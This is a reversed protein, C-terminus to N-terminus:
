QSSEEAPNTARALDSVLTPARGSLLWMLIAGASAVNLSEMDGLMPISVPHCHKRVEASVGQGESGLILCAKASQLSKLSSSFVLHNDGTPGDDAMFLRDASPEVDAVIRPLHHMDAVDILDGITGQQIPIKFCAGRSARMSKENFPDACGPLLFVGDWGM